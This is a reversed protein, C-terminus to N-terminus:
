DRLPEQWGRHKQKHERQRCFEERSAGERRKGRLRFAMYKPLRGQVGELTVQRTETM